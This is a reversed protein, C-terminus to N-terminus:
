SAEGEVGAWSVNVEHVKEIIEDSVIMPLAGWATIFDRESMAIRSRGKGDTKFKFLPEGNEDELNADALTLMAEVRHLQPQNLSQVLEFMTGDEGFKSRLDAFVAQRKEQEYQTAQRITVYTGESEFAKDTKKLEFREEVPPKLQFAM